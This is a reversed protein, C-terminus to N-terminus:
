DGLIALALFGIAMLALAVIRPGFVGWAVAWAFRNAVKDIREDRSIREERKLADRFDTMAQKREGPTHWDPRPERWEYKFDSWTRRFAGCIACWQVGADKFDGELIDAKVAYGPHSCQRQLWRLLLLWLTKM